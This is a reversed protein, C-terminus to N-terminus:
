AAAAAVARARAVGKITDWMICLLPYGWLVRKALSWCRGWASPPAQPAAGLMAEEVGSGGVYMACCVDCRVRGGHQVVFRWFQARERSFQVVIPLLFGVGLYLFVAVAGCEWGHPAPVGAEGGGGGKSGGGGSSRMGELRQWPALVADLGSFIEHVALAGASGALGECLRCMGPLTLLVEGALVLAGLPM